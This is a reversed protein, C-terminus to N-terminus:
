RHPRFGTRVYENVSTGDIKKATININELPKFQEFVQQILNKEKNWTKYHFTVNLRQIQDDGWSVAQAQLQVPYCEEFTFRASPIGTDHFAIVQITGIYNDRYEATGAPRATGDFNVFSEISSRHSGKPLIMEMWDDFFKREWLDGACIFTLQLPEYIPTAAVTFPAGFVKQEVTNIQYGPLQATECQFSLSATNIGKGWLDSAGKLVSNKGGILGGLLGGSQLTSPQYILAAFKAAKSFDAHVAYNALFADPFM